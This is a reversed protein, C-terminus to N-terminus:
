PSDEEPPEEADRLGDAIDRMIAALEADAAAERVAETDEREAREEEVQQLEELQESVTEIAERMRVIEAYDAKTQGDEAMRAELHVAITWFFTLVVILTNFYTLRRNFRAEAKAVEVAERQEAYFARQEELLAEQVELSRALLDGINASLGMDIKSITVASRYGAVQEALRESLNRFESGIMRDLNLREFVTSFRDFDLGAVVSGIQINPMSDRYTEMAKAISSASERQRELIDAYPRQQNAIATQITEVFLAHRETMAKLASGIGSDNSALRAAEMAKAVSGLATSSNVKQLAGIGTAEYAKMVEDAMTLSRLAGSREVARVVKMGAEIKKEEDSM